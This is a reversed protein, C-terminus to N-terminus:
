NQNIISQNKHNKIENTLSNYPNQLEYVKDENEKTIKIKNNNIETLL